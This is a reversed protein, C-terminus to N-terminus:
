AGHSFGGDFVDVDQDDAGARNALRQVQREGGAALFRQKEVTSRQVRL